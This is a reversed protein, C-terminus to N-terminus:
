IGLDKFVKEAIIGKGKKVESVAKNVRKILKPNEDAKREFLEELELYSKLDLLIAQPKGHQTIVIEKDKSLNDIIDTLERRLEDTGIFKKQLIDSLYTNM